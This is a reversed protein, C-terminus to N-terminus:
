QATVAGPMVVTNSTMEKGTAKDKYVVNASIVYTGPLKTYLDVYVLGSMEDLEAVPYDFVRRLVPSM